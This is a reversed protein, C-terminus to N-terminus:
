EDGNEEKILCCKAYDCYTCNDCKKFDKYIFYNGLIERIKDENKESIEPNYEQNFSKKEFPFVYSFSEINGKIFEKNENNLLAKKYLFYQFTKNDKVDKEKKKKKGTKYDFIRYHRGNEDDYYDIRDVSGKIHLRITKEDYEFVITNKLPDLKYECAYVKWKTKKFDDHFKELYNISGQRVKSVDKDYANALGVPCTKKIEDLAEKFVNEYMKEDFSSGYENRKIFKESIYKEFIAHVFTGFDVAELFTTPNFDRSEYLKLHKDYHYYYKFSCAALEELASASITIDLIDKTESDIKKFEYRNLVRIDRNIFDYSSNTKIDSDVVGYKNQLRLYLSSKSLEMNNVTDFYPYSYYIECDNLYNLSNIFTTQHVEEKNNAKFRESSILYKELEDDSLLPSESNNLTFYSESLGVVYNYKRTLVKVKKKILYLNIKNDEENDCITINSIKDLLTLVANNFNEKTQLFNYDDIITNLFSTNIKKDCYSVLLENLSSLLESLFVKNGDYEKLTTVLQRLFSVFELSNDKYYEDNFYRNAGFGIGNKVTQNYEKPLNLDNIKFDKNFFLDRLYSFSYNSAAFKLVSILMQVYSNNLGNQGSIFNYEIKYLELMARIPNEYQVSPYVINIDGLSLKRNLIDECVNKIENFVGYSKSFAIKNCYCPSDLVFHNPYRKILMKREEDSIENFFLFAVNENSAFCNKLADKILSVGDYVKLGKLKEEYKDIINKLYLTKYDDYNLNSDNSRLININRLVERATDLSYSSEPIIDNANEEIITELLNISIEDDIMNIFSLNNENLFHEIIIEKAVDIINIVRANLFGNGNIAYMKIIRNLNDSDDTIIIKKGDAKLFELLNM